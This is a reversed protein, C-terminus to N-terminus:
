PLDSRTVEEGPVCSAGLSPIYGNGPSSRAFAHYISVRHNCDGNRVHRVNRVSSMDCPDIDLRTSV